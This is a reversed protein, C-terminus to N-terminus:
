ALSLAPAPSRSWLQTQWWDTAKIAAWFADGTPDNEFGLAPNDYVAQLEAPMEGPAPDYVEEPGAIVRQDLARLPERHAENPEAAARSLIPRVTSSPGPVNRSWFWGGPFEDLWRLAAARYSM